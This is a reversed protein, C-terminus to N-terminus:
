REELTLAFGERWGPYLPQWGLEQRAKKNSAGRAWPAHDKSTPPAPANLLKAYIPLWVTGPAPEDDVINVIGAPWDLALLAARAADDVHVFSDVGPNATLQGRRVQDALLGDPAYWTGPGYLLGYRLVIGHEMEAVADELEKVAEVTRKRSPDSADIGLPVSEDAPGDGPVCVWSISQAIMQRVGAARAADVLNRTGERRLRSNGQFDRGSLDTLQHIIADPRTERLVTVLGERDFMDVIVPDAGLSKLQQAKEIARTTGIVEHGAAKLLPLLGRGITGTAGAVFIKM